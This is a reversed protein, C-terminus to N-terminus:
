RCASKDIIEGMLMGTLPVEATPVWWFDEQHDRYLNDAFKPLQGSAFMVEERVMWPPYFEKYGQRIHLDLMWFILARELRAGAGKLVYFRTGSLKVGAEFDIINLDTGLDWHAKPEFDFQKPAGITRLVVNHKDDPGLPVDADPINPIGAMVDYLNSETQKLSEDLASIEDGLLRMASIKAEREEKSKMRGIEKSVANREAKKAEVDLILRRRREDLAVVEDVVAADMQRRALGERVLEPTERFLKIDLMM